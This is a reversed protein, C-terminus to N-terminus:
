FKHKVLLETNHINKRLFAQCEKTFIFRPFVDSSLEMELMYRIEAVAKKLANLSKEKECVDKGKECSEMAQLLKKKIKGSINIQYKADDDIHEEFIEKALKFAEDLNRSADLKVAKLIFIWPEVNREKELHKYFLKGFETISFLAEFQPEYDELKKKM